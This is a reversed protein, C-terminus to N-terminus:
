GGEAQLAETTSPGRMLADSATYRQGQTWAGKKTNSIEHALTLTAKDRPASLLFVQHPEGGGRRGSDLTRMILEAITADTENDSSRLTAVEDRSFMVNDRRHLIVPVERQIAKDKYFGLYKIDDRFRRGPQCVYSATELYWQYADRAAVVVTDADAVAPRRAREKHAAVKMEM